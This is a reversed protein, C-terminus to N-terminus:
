LWDTAPLSSLQRRDSARVAARHGPVRWLSSPSSCTTDRGEPDGRSTTPVGGSARLILLLGPTPSTLHRTLYDSDRSGLPHPVYNRSGPFLQPPLAGKLLLVQGWPM